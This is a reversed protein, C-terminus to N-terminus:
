WQWDEATGNRWAGSVDVLPHVCEDAFRVQPAHTQQPAWAVDFRFVAGAYAGRRVFVVGHLRTADAPPALAPSIYM